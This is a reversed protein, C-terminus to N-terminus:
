GLDRRLVLARRRSGDHAPYYAPREGVQGFGSRHYLALAALNGDEVELFLAAIGRARLHSVHRELLLGAHGRGRWAEASAISLIEAEDEAFRSLVFSSPQATEAVFLGDALVSRDGLLAAVEAEDWGRAFSASHLAAIAAAHPAALPEIRVPWRGFLREGLRM